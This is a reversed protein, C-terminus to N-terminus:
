FDRPEENEPDDEPIIKNVDVTQIPQSAFKSVKADIQNNKDNLVMFQEEVV